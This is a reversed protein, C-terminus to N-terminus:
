IGGILILHNTVVLPTVIPQKIAAKTAINLAAVYDSM